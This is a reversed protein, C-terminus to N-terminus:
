SVASSNLFSIASTEPLDSSKGSLHIDGGVMVQASPGIRVTVTNFSFGLNVAASRGLKNAQKSANGKGISSTGSFMRNFGNSALQFLTGPIGRLSWKHAGLVGTGVTSVAAFDNKPTDITANVWMNGGVTVTGDILAELQTEHLGFNLATALTGDGYAAATSSVIHNRVADVDIDLNGGVQVTSDSSISVKSTVKSYAVALTANQKEVTTSVGILNQSAAIDLQSDSLTEITFNGSTDIQAGNEIVVESTPISHGYAVAAFVTLVLADADTYAKSTMTLTDAAISGGNVTLKASAESLAVGAGLAIKGFFEEASEGISGDDGDENAYLDASDSLVEIIVEGSKITATSLEVEARTFTIDPLLPVQVIGSTIDDLESFANMTLNGASHTSTAHSTISGAVKIFPADFKIAASNDTSDDLLHNPTAGALQRTSVTKGSQVEISLASLDLEVGQTWIDDLYLTTLQNDFLNNFLTGVAESTNVDPAVDLTVNIVVKTDTTTGFNLKQDGADSSDLDSSFTGSVTGWQLEGGDAAKLYIDDLAVTDPSLIAGSITFDITTTGGSSSLNVDVALLSSFAETMLPLGAEISGAQYELDWDGGLSAAGTLDM